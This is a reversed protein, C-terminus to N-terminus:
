GRSVEALMAGSQAIAAEKADNWRPRKAAQQTNWASCQEVDFLLARERATLLELLGRWVAGRRRSLMGILKRVVAPSARLQKALGDTSEGRAHLARYFETLELPKIGSM